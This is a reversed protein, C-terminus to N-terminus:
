RISYISYCLFKNNYGKDKLIHVLTIWSSFQVAAM